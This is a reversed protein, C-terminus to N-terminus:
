KEDGEKRNQKAGEEEKGPRRPGLAELEAKDTFYNLQWLKPKQRAAHPGMTRGQQQQSLGESQVFDVSVKAFEQIERQVGWWWLNGRGCAGKKPHPPKPLSDAFSHARTQTDTFSHSHTPDPHISHAHSPCPLPILIASQAQRYKWHCKARGAKVM